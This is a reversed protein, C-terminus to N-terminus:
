AQARGTHAGGGSFSESVLDVPVKFHSIIEQQTFRRVVTYDGSPYVSALLVRLPISPKPSSM